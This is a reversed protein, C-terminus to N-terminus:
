PKPKSSPCNSHGSRHRWLRGPFSSLRNRKVVLLFPVVSKARFGRIMDTELGSEMLKEMVPTIDWSIGVYRKLPGLTVIENDM